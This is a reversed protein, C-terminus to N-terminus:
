LTQNKNRHHWVFYISVLLILYLFPDKGKFFGVQVTKIIIVIVTILALALWRYM